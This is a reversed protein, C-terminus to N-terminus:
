AEAVTEAIACDSCIYCANIEIVVSHKANQVIFQIDDTHCVERAAVAIGFETYGYQRLMAAAADAARKQLAGVQM